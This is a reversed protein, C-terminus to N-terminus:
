RGNSYHHHCCSCQSSHANLCGGNLPEAAGEGTLDFFPLFDSM